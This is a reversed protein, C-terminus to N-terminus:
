PSDGRPSGPLQLEDLRRGARLLLPLWRAIRFLFSASYRLMSLSRQTSGRHGRLLAGLFRRPKFSGFLSCYLYMARALNVVSRAASRSSAMDEYRALVPSRTAEDYFATSPLASYPLFLTLDANRLGGLFTRRLEAVRQGPLGVVHTGIVFVGADECVRAAARNLAASSRKGMSALAHDEYSEYGVVLSRLGVEYALGVLEPQEAVLQARMFTSWHFDYRRERMAELLQRFRPVDEGASSAVVLLEGFGLEQLRDLERLLRDVSKGRHSHEWFASEFCFKCRFPCGRGLEIAAAHQGHMAPFMGRTLEWRPLPTDDLRRILPLSPNRVLHGQQIHSLNPVQRWCEGAELAALLAEFPLEGEGRIVADAGAALVYHELHSAGMGGVCLFCGPLRVRLQELFLCFVPLDQVVHLSLFLLDPSLAAIREVASGLRPGSYTNDVISVDMRAPVRAALTPLSLDPSALAVSMHQWNEPQNSLVVRM